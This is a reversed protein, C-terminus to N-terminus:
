DETQAVYETWRLSWTKDASFLPPHHVTYNRKM